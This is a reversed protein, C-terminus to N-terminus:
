SRVYRQITGAAWAPHLLKWQWGPPGAMLDGGYGITNGTHSAVSRGAARPTITVSRSGGGKSSVKAAAYALEEGQHAMAAPLTLPQFMVSYPPQWMINAWKLLTPLGLAGVAGIVFWLGTEKLGM